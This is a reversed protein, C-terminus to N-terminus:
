SLDKQLERAIAAAKPKEFERVLESMPTQDEKAILELAQMKAALQPRKAKAETLAERGEETITFLAEADSNIGAPLSSKITEGWSAYYYDAIWKSLDLLEPTVLPELDFLEEIDKIEFSEDAQGAEELTEHLDVIYGTLLQRRFPVLVRAGPKANEALPEPLHYTFTQHVNLPIAVEAYM